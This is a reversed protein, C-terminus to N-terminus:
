GNEAVGLRPSPKGSHDPLLRPLLMQSAESLDPDPLKSIQQPTEVHRQSKRSRFSTTSFSILFHVIFKCDMGTM